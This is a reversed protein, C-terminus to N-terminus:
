RQAYPSGEPWYMETPHKDIWEQAREGLISSSVTAVVEIFERASALEAAVADGAAKIHDFNDCKREGQWKATPPYVPYYPM